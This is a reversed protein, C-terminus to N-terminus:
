YTPLDAKYELIIHTNPLWIHFCICLAETWQHNLTYLYMFYDNVMDKQDNPVLMYLFYMLSSTYPSVLILCRCWKRYNPWLDSLVHWLYAYLIYKWERYLIQSGCLFHNYSYSLLVGQTAQFLSQFTLGFHPMAVMEPLLAMFWEICTVFLCIFYIKM